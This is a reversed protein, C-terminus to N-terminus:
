QVFDEPDFRVIGLVSSEFQLVGDSLPLLCKLKCELAEKYRIYPLARRRLVSSTTFLAVHLRSCVCCYTRDDYSNQQENRKWIQGIWM